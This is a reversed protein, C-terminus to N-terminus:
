AMKDPGIDKGTRQRSATSRMLGQQVAERADLDRWDAQRARAAPGWNHKDTM